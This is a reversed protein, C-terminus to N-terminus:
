RPPGNEESDSDSEEPEPLEATDEVAPAPTDPHEAADDVLSFLDPQDVERGPAAHEGPSVLEAGTFQGAPPPLGTDPRTGPNRCPEPDPHPLRVVPEVDTRPPDTTSAIVTIGHTSIRHLAAWVRTRAAEPLGQEVDDVLLGAPTPAVGLAVALLLREAPHLTWLPARRDPDIGVLAFSAAIDEETTAATIRRERIAERVKWREELEFGPVLRAPAILRRAHRAHRPLRHGDVEIRGAVLRLRGSLALLLATRGTGSPGAVVALQGPHIDVDVNEFVPGLPGRATIGRATVAVGESRM